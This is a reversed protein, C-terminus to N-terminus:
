NAPPAPAGMPGKPWVTAARRDYDQREAANECFHRSPDNIGNRVSGIVGNLSSRDNFKGYTNVDSIYRKLNAKQEPSIPWGCEDAALSVVVVTVVEANFERTSKMTTIASPITKTRIPALSHDDYLTGVPQYSARNLVTVRAIAGDFVFEGPTSSTAGAKLHLDVNLVINRNGSAAAEIYKRADTESVPLESFTMSPVKVLYTSPLVSILKSRVFTNYGVPCTKEVSSRDVDVRQAGGGADFTKSKDSVVIPFVKRSLDYEGLTLTKPVPENGMVRRGFVVAQRMSNVSPGGGGFMLLGGTDPLGSLIEEAKASYFDALAPYDLENQLARQVTSDNCNNLAIFYQMVPKQRLLGPNLRMAAIDFPVPGNELRELDQAALIGHASQGTEPPVAVAAGSTISPRQEPAPAPPRPATAPVPTPRRTTAAPAANSLAKEGGQDIWSQFSKKLKDADDGVVTPLIQLTGNMALISGIIHNNADFVQAMQNGPLFKFTYEDWKIETFASSFGSRVSQAPVPAPCLVLSVLLLYAHSPKRLM